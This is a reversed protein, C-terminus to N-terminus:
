SPKQQNIKTTHDKTILSSGCLFVGGVYAGAELGEVLLGVPQDVDGLQVAAFDGQVGGVGEGGQFHGLGAQVHHAGAAQQEAVGHRRKGFVLPHHLELGV